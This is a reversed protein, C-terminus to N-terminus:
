CVNTVMVGAVNTQPEKIQKPKLKLFVTIAHSDESIVKYDLHMKDLAEIEQEVESEEDM